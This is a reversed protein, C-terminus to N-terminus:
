VTKIKPQVMSMSSTVRIKTTMATLIKNTKTMLAIKATKTTLNLSRNQNHNLNRSRNLSRNPNLSRSLNHSRSLNPNHTPNLNHNQSLRHATLILMSRLFRNQLRNLTILNVRTVTSISSSANTRLNRRLATPAMVSNATLCKSATHLVTTISVAKTVSVAMARHATLITRNSRLAIHTSTAKPHTAAM